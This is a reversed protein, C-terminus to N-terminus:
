FPQRRRGPYDTRNTTLETFWLNGDPGSTIHWTHLWPIGASFETVVGLPTIRGIRDHRRRHVVPQRRARRHHRYRAPFAANFETVVGLPTIRGIRHRRRKRLGSTAMPARQSAMPHAGATIGASFETVVGAPTIRGIRNGYTGHVVPQRRPRRHYRLPERRRQHRRQVRHRRWAAYDARDTAAMSRSGCTAMPAPPSASTPWASIGPSFETVVGAPTIRGIGNAGTETFWLNGDPGATIAFADAGASFETVVQAGASGALFGLSALICGLVIRCPKM